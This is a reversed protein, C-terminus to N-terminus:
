RGPRCGMGATRCLDVHWRRVLMTHGRVCVNRASGDDCALSKRGM